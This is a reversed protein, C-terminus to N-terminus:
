KERTQKILGKKKKKKKKLKKREIKKEIWVSNLFTTGLINQYNRRVGILKGPLLKKNHRTSGVSFCM